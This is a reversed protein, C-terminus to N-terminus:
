SSWTGFPDRVYAVSRLGFTREYFSSAARPDDVYVIVWGLSFGLETM